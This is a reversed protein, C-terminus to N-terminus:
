WLLKFAEFFVLMFLVMLLILGEGAFLPAVLSQFWQFTVSKALSQASLGLGASGSVCAM